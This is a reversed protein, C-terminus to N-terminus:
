SAAPGSRWGRLQSGSVLRSDSTLARVFRYQRGRKRLAVVRRNGERLVDLQRLRNQRTEVNEADHLVGDVGDLVVHECAEDDAAVRAAVRAEHLFMKLISEHGSLQPLVRKVIVVRELGFRSRELALFVEAMGGAAFRDLIEFRGVRTPITPTSYSM